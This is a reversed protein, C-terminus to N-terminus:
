SRENPVRRHAQRKWRVEYSLISRNYHDFVMSVEASTKKVASRDEDTLEDWIGSATMIGQLDVVFADIEVVECSRAPGKVSLGNSVQHVHRPKGSTSTPTATRQASTSEETM